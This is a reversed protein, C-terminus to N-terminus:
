MDGSGEVGKELERELEQLEHIKMWLRGLNEQKEARREEYAQKEEDVPRVGAKNRKRKASSASRSMQQMNDRSLSDIYLLIGDLETQEKMVDAM